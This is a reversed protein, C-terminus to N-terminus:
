LAVLLMGAPLNLLFFGATMEPVLLDLESPYFGM